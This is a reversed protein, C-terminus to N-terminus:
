AALVAMNTLLGVAGAVIGVGWLGAALRPMACGWRGKREIIAIMAAFFIVGALKFPLALEPQGMVIGPLLNQEAFTPHTSSAAVFGAVEPEVLM